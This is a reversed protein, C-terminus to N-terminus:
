CKKKGKEDISSEGLLDIKFVNIDSYHLEIKLDINTWLKNIYKRYEEISMEITYGDITATGNFNPFEEITKGVVDIDSIYCNMKNILLIENNNWYSFNKFLSFGQLESYKDYNKRSCIVFYDNKDKIHSIDSMGVISFNTKSILKQIKERLMLYINNTGGLEWGEKKVNLFEINISAFNRCKQNNNLFKNYIKLIHDNLKEQMQKKRDSTVIFEKNEINNFKEKVYELINNKYELLQEKSIKRIEYDNSFENLYDILVKIAGDNDLDGSFLRVDIEDIEKNIEYNKFVFYKKVIEIKRNINQEETIHGKLYIKKFIYSTNDVYDIFLDKELYCNCDSFYDKVYEMLTNDDEIYLILYTIALVYPMYDNDLENFKFTLERFNEVLNLNIITTIYDIYYKVKIIAENSSNNIEGLIIDINKFFHRKNINSINECLDIMPLYYKFVLSYSNKFITTLHIQYEILKILFPENYKFNQDNVDHWLYESM